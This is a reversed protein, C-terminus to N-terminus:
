AARRKLEAKIKQKRQHDRIEQQDRMSLRDKRDVFPQAYAVRDLAELLEEDTMESITKARRTSQPSFPRSAMANAQIKDLADQIAQQRTM